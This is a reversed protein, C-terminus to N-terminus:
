EVLQLLLSLGSRRVAVIHFCYPLLLSLGGSIASASGAKWGNTRKYCETKSRYRNTCEYVKGYTVHVLREVSVGCSGTSCGGSGAVGSDLGSWSLSFSGERLYIGAEFFVSKYEWM